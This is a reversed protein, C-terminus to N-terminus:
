ARCASNYSRPPPPAAGRGGGPPPPRRGGRPGAGRPPAAGGGRPAGGPPPPRAPAAGGGGREWETSAAEPLESALVATIEVGGEVSRNSLVIAEGGLEEKLRRLAERATPAFYRKIDM